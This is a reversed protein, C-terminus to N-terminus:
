NTPLPSSARTAISSPYANMPSWAYLREVTAPYHEPVFTARVVRKLVSLPARRALYICLALDSLGPDSVHHKSVQYTRDLLEDGKAIRFKTKSLDRWGGHKVSFDSVWPFVYHDNTLSTSRGAARNLILLYDFTSLSGDVWRSTPSATAPPRPIAITPLVRCWADDTLFVTRASLEGIQELKQVAKFVQYILFRLRLDLAARPGGCRVALAASRLCGAKARLIRRLSTLQPHTTTTGKRALCPLVNPDDICARAIM